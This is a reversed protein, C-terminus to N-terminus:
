QICKTRDHHVLVNCSGTCHSCANVASMHYDPSAEAIFSSYDDEDIFRNVSFHSLLTGNLGIKSEETAHFCVTIKIEKGNETRINQEATEKEELESFNLQGGRASVNSPVLVPSNTM